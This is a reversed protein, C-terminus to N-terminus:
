DTTSSPKNEKRFDGGGQKWLWLSEIAYNRVTLHSTRKPNAADQLSEIIECDKILDWIMSYIKNMVEKISGHESYTESDIEPVLQYYTQKGTKYLIRGLIKISISRQQPFTSRTLRALEPITYGALQPDDSHHHLGSHTTSTIERSPPVLDGKFDFRLQSVDDIMTKTQEEDDSIPKMWELKDVDKPLDPFFKEHLKVDFNPDNLDLKEVEKENEENPNVYKIFHVDKFLNENAMHDISQAMQYDLPAVDDIDDFELSEKIEVEKEVIDVNPKEEEKISLKEVGLAKDVMDDSMPRLDNPDNTGGVWTGPAGEIEAFLPASEGDKGSRKNINALLKQILKPNMSEFLERKEQMIQEDSMNNITNLNEMHISQAETRKEENDEAVVAREAPKARVRENSNDEGSRKMAAKARLRQKWSSIKEPKYLEPFGNKSLERTNESIEATPTEEVDKEVIDGLLDM